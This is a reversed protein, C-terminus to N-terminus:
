FLKLLSKGFQWNARAENESISRNRAPIPVSVRFMFSSKSERESPKLRLGNPLSSTSPIFRRGDRSSTLSVANVAGYADTLADTVSQQDRIDV